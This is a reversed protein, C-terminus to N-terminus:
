TYPLLLERIYIEGRVGVTRQQQQLLECQQQWKSNISRDEFVSNFAIKMSGSINAQSVPTQQMKTRIRGAKSERALSRRGPGQTLNATVSRLMSPPDGSFTDEGPEKLVVQVRGARFVQLGLHALENNEPFHETHCFFYYIYSRYNSSPVLVCHKSWQGKMM